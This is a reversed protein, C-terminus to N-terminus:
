ATQLVSRNAARVHEDAFWDLCLRKYDFLFREVFMEASMSFADSVFSNRAISISVGIYKYELVSSGVTEKRLGNNFDFSVLCYQINM